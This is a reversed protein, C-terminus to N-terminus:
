LFRDGGRQNNTRNARLREGLDREQRGDVGHAKGAMESLFSAKNGGEDEGCDDDINSKSSEVRSTALSAADRQMEQLARAKDEKSMRGGQAGGGLKEEAEGWEEGAEKMVSSYDVKDKDFKKREEAAARAAGSMQLGYGQKKAPPAISPPPPMAEGVSHSAAGASSSSDSSESESRRRRKKEKKEKKSKKRKKKKEKKEKKEKKAKKAKGFEGTGGKLIDMDRQRKRSEVTVEMQRKKMAYLPDHISHAFEENRENVTKQESM